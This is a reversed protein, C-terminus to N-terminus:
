IAYMINCINISAATQSFTHHMKDKGNQDSTMKITTMQKSFAKTTGRHQRSSYLLMMRVISQLFRSNIPVIIHFKLSTLIQILWWNQFFFFFLDCTCYIQM